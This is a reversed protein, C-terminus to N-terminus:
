VLVVLETTFYSWYGFEAYTADPRTLSFTYADITTIDTPTFTLTETAADFDVVLSDDAAFSIDCATAGSCTFNGPRGFLTGSYPAGNTLAIAGNSAPLTIRGIDGRRIRTPVNNFVVPAIIVVTGGGTQNNMIVDAGLYDAPLRTQEAALNDWRWQRTKSPGLNSFMRGSDIRGNSYNRRFSAGTWGSELGSTVPTAPLPGGDYNLTIATGNPFVQSIPLPHTM